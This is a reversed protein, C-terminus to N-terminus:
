VKFFAAAKEPFDTCLLLKERAAPRWPRWQSRWRAWTVRHPRRQLEPSVLCLKKGRRVHARMAADSIWSQAFEDMWVGQAEAYYAPVPELESHRTFVTASLRLYPLADPAAMDFFFFNERWTPPITKWVMQALGNAKINVAITPRITRASCTGQYLGLFQSWQLLKRTPLPPDHSIVLSGNCDRLDLEIGYGLKLARKFAPLTNKEEPRRWYGRHALIEM